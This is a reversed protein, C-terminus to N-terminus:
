CRLNHINKIYWQYTIFIGEELETTYNWGLNAMKSIDLVKRNTGDPKRDDFKLEGKYGVIKRITESLTRISLDQGTGINIFCPHPYNIFQRQFTNDDLSMIFICGDALDDVFLFERMPTGSGWVTVTPENKIKADHCRKILAPLVHSDTHHFNDNPGYLNTPMAAIFKTDYQRNYSECMKIGAIKAIAYPENTPELLGTLLYEEKIPQKSHKPYICSSGLFLLRKVKNLYSQHIINNQISINEYIFDAPYKNNAYIGGVKAAAMFIYEPCNNSFYKAVANENTFDLEERNPTLIDKYGLSTLRRTLASGVLGTSGAILIKSSENM